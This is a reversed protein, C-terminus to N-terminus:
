SDAGIITLHRVTGIFFPWEPAGDSTSSSDPSRATVHSFLGGTQVRARRSFKRGSVRALLEHLDLRRFLIRQRERLHGSASVVEDDDVVTGAADTVRDIQCTADTSGM